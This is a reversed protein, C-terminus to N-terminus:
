HNEGVIKSLRNLCILQSARQCFEVIILHWLETLEIM